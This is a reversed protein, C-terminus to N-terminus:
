DLPPTAPHVFVTDTGAPTVAITGNAGAVIPMLPSVQIIPVSPDANICAGQAVAAVNRAAQTVIVGVQGCPAMVVYLGALTGATTRAASFLLALGDGRDLVGAVEDRDFSATVQWPVSATPGFAVAGVADVPAVLWRTTTTYFSDGGCFYFRAHHASTVLAVRADTGPVMGVFVPTAAEMMSSPPVSEGCSLLGAVVFALPGPRRRAAARECVLNVTRDKM